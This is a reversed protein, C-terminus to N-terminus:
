FVVNDLEFSKLELKQRCIRRKLFFIIFFLVSTIQLM